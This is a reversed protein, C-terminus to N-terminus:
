AGTAHHRAGKKFRQAARQGALKRLIITAINPELEKPYHGLIAGQIEPAQSAFWCIIQDNLDPATAGHRITLNSLQRHATRSLEIRKSAPM